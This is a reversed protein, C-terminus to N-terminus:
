PCEKIRHELSGCRLCAEIRRWCEGPHRRGCDGCLQIGTPAVPAGVRVPGDSRVKKKHRQVSSSAVSDRKNKGRKRDRNQREVHKVDEAIKAKEM